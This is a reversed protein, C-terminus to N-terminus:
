NFSSFSIPDASKEDVNGRSRTDATEKKFSNLFSDMESYYSISLLQEVTRAGFLIADHVKHMHLYPYITQGEKHKTGAMYALVMDVRLGEYVLDRDCYHYFKM